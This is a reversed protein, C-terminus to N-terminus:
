DSKSLITAASQLEQAAETKGLLTLAAIANLLLQQVAVATQFDMRTRDDM